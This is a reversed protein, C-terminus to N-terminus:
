ICGIRMFLHPKVGSKARAELAFGRGALARRPKVSISNSTTMAMIAMRAASKSGAKLRAFSLAWPMLHM